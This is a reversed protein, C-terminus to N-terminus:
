YMILGLKMKKKTFVEVTKHLSTGRVGVMPNEDAAVM